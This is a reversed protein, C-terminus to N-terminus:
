SVIKLYTVRLAASQAEANQQSMAGVGVVEAGQGVLVDEAEKAFM